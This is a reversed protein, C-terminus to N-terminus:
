CLEIQSWVEDVLVRDLLDQSGVHAAGVVMYSDNDGREEGTSPRLILCGKSGRVKVLCDGRLVPGSTSGLVGTDAAFFHVGHTYAGPKRFHAAGFVSRIFRVPGRVARPVVIIILLLQLVRTKWAWVLVTVLFGLKAAIGLSWALLYM